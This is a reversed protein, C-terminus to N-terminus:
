PAAPWTVPPVSILSVAGPQSQEIPTGTTGTCTSEPCDCVKTVLIGREMDPCVPCDPLPTNKDSDCAYGPSAPMTIGDTNKNDFVHMVLGCGLDVANFLKSGSESESCNYANVESCSGNYLVFSRITGEMVADGTDLVSDKVGPLGRLCQGDGISAPFGYKIWCNIASACNSTNNCDNDASAQQGLPPDDIGLRLWGRNGPAMPQGGIIFTPPTPLLQLIAWQIFADELFPPDSYVLTSGNFYATIYANIYDSGSGPLGGGCLCQDCLPNIETSANDEAWLIFSSGVRYRTFKHTVKDYDSCPIHHYYTDADFAIPMAGCGSPAAGCAAAAVAGVDVSPVLARGFFAQATVSAKVVVTTGSQDNETGDLDVRM